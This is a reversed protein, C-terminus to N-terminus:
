GEIDLQHSHHQADIGGWIVLRFLRAQALHHQGTVVEAIRVLSLLHHDPQDTPPTRSSECSERPPVDAPHPPIAPFLLASLRVSLDRVPLLYGLLRAIM